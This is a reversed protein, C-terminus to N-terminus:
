PADRSRGLPGFRTLVGASGPTGPFIAVGTQANGASASAVLVGNMYLCTTTGNATGVVYYWQGVTMGPGFLLHGAGDWMYWNIAGNTSVYLDNTYMSGGIGSAMGALLETVTPVANLKVWAAVTVQPFNFIGQSVVSGTNIGVATNTFNPLAGAEGYTIGTGSYVGNQGNTSADFATGGSAEGLRWYLTPNAGLVLSVYDSKGMLNGNLDYLFGAQAGGTITQQIIQNLKNHNRQDVTSSGGVPTFTSDSWNGLADLDYNRSSDSNLLTIPPADCRGNINEATRDFSVVLAVM